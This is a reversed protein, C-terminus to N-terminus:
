QQGPFAILIVYERHTHTVRTIWCAFHMCWTVTNGTGQRAGVYKKWMKEYVACSESFNYFIFHTKIKEVVKDSVNIKVFIWRSIM